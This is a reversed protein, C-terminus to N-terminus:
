LKDFRPEEFRIELRGFKKALPLSGPILQHRSRLNPGATPARFKTGSNRRSPNRSRCELRIHHPFNSQYLGLSLIFFNNRPFNKLFLFGTIKKFCVTLPVLPLKSNSM